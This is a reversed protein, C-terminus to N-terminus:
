LRDVCGLIIEYDLGNKLEDLNINGPNTCYLSVRPTPTQSVEIRQIQGELHAKHWPLLDIRKPSEKGWEGKLPLNWFLSFEQLFEKPTQLASKKQRLTTAYDKHWFYQAVLYGLVILVLSSAIHVILTM